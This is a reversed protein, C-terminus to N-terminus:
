TEIAGAPTSRFAPQMPSQALSAGKEVAKEVQSTECVYRRLAMSSLALMLLRRMCWCVRYRPIYGNGIVDARPPDRFCVNHIDYIDFEMLLGGKPRGYGVVGVFHGLKSFFASFYATTELPKERVLLM